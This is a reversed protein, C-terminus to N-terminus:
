IRSPARPGRPVAGAGPEPHGPVQLPGAHASPRAPPQAGPAVLPPLRGGAVDEALWLRVRSVDSAVVPQGAVEGIAAVVEDPRGIGREPDHRLRMCLIVSGADSGIALAAILPRVDQMRVRDGRVRERVIERAALLENVATKLADIPPGVVRMAYDSAVVQGGIAPAGTWVDFLDVLAHGAPLTAEIATRVVAISCRETLSVEVPEREATVGTPVPAGFAIKARPRDGESRAIPLGSAALAAEWADAVDRHTWDRAVEGREVILRWRQRVESM